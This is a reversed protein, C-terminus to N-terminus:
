PAAQLEALRFAIALAAQLQRAGTPATQFTEVLEALNEDIELLAELAARTPDSM